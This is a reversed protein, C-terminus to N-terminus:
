VAGSAWPNCASWIHGHAFTTIDFVFKRCSSYASYAHAPKRSEISAFQRKIDFDSEISGSKRSLAPKVRSIQAVQLLILLADGIFSAWYYADLLCVWTDICGQIISPFCLCPLFLRTEKQLQLLLWWQQWLWPQIKPCKLNPKKNKILNAKAKGMSCSTRCSTIPTTIKDSSLPLRIRKCCNCSKSIYADIEQDWIRKGIACLPCRWGEFHGSAITYIFSM